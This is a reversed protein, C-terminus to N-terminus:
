YDCKSCQSVWCETHTCMDCRDMGPVPVRMRPESLNERVQVVTRTIKPELSVIQNSKWNTDSSWLTWSSTYLTLLDLPALTTLLLSLTSVNTPPTQYIHSKHPVGTFTSSPAGSTGGPNRNPQQTWSQARIWGYKTKRFANNQLSAATKWIMTRNCWM